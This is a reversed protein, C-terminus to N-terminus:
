SKESFWETYMVIFLLKYKGVISPFHVKLKYVSPDRSLCDRLLSLFIYLYRNKVQLCPRYFYHFVFSPTSKILAWPYATPPATWVHLHNWGWCKAKATVQIVLILYHLLSGSLRSLWQWSLLCCQFLSTAWIVLCLSGINRGIWLDLWVSSDIARYGM